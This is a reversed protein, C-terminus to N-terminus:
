GICFDVGLGVINVGSKAFLGVWLFVTMEFPLENGKM